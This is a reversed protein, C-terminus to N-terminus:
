SRGPLAPASTRKGNSRELRSPPPPCRRRPMGLLGPWPTVVPLAFAPRTMVLTDVVASAAPWQLRRIGLAIREARFGDGGAASVDALEAHGTLTVAPEGEGATVRFRGDFSVRADWDTPAGTLARWPALAVRHVRAAADLARLDRALRGDLALEAGSDLAARASVIWGTGAAHREPASLYGTLAAVWPPGTLVRGLGYFFGAIAFSTLPGVMAILFEARPTPPESELESVGGFIHLRISSVRVGHGLAVLAHALEHLFVSAFLLLTAAVGHAWAAGPTLDPLVRPFYGAALSWSILAFVLLWSVDIRVPIGAIHLVQLM